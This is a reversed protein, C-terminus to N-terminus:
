FDYSFGVVPSVHSVLGANNLPFLIQGSVLLNRWPNLKVGASGLFSTLSGSSIAISQLTTMETPATPGQQFSHPISVDSVRFVSSFTRGVVDGVVTVRPSVSIEVGGVYNAQNSVGGRAATYGLNFHPSLISGVKGSGILYVETQAAGAGLMNDANGSPLHLDVAVALGSAGSRLFDYKGRLVVDGVGSASGQSTFDETKGGNEFVHTGPSVVHTAFDLITAHYTLDMSVRV